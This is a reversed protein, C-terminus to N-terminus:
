EFETRNYLLLNGKKGVERITGINKLTYIIRRAKFVAIQLEKAYSKTSFPEELNIPIFRQFDQKNQFIISEVVEKLKRDFISIGKRRWSGKGDDCRIEEEKILLIELTFNKQQFL